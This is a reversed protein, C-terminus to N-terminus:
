SGILVLDGIGRAILELRRLIFARLFIDSLESDTQVLGRLAEREIEILESPEAARIRVLARRGSLLSLEGTFMGPGCLAILEEKNDSVRQLELRGSVVVFFKIGPTSPEVITEGSEAKRLRGHALVRAQQEPTLVPFMEDPFSGPLPAPTTEMLPGIALISKRIVCTIAVTAELINACTTRTITRRATGHLPPSLQQRSQTSGSGQHM